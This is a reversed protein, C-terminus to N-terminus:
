IWLQAATTTSPAVTVDICMSGGGHESKSKDEVGNAVTQEAPQDERQRHIGQRKEDCNASANHREMAAGAHETRWKNANGGARHCKRDTLGCECHRRRQDQTRSNGGRKGDRGGNSAVVDNEGYRLDSYWRESPALDESAEARGENAPRRPYAQGGESLGAWRLRAPRHLICRSWNARCGRALSLREGDDDDFVNMM